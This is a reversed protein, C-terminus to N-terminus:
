AGEAVDAMEAQELEIEEKERFEANLLKDQCRRQATTVAFRGLFNWSKLVEKALFLRAPLDYIMATESLIPRLSIPDISEVLGPFKKIHKAIIDITKKAVFADKTFAVGDEQYQGTRPDTVRVHARVTSDTVEYELIDTCFGQSNASRNVMAATPAAGDETKYLTSKKRHYNALDADPVQPAPKTMGQSKSIPVPVNSREQRPKQEPEALDKLIASFVMAAFEPDNSKLRGNEQWIQIDQDKTVGGVILRVRKDEGESFTMKEEESKARDNIRDCYIKAAALINAQTATLAASM